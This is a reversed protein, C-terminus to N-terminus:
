SYIPILQLRFPNDYEHSCLSRRVPLHLADEEDFRRSGIGTALGNSEALNGCREATVAIRKSHSLHMVNRRSTNSSPTSALLPRQLVVDQAKLGGQSVM